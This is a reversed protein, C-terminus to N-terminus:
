CAGSGSFIKISTAQNDWSGMSGAQSGNNLCLIAGNGDTNDAIKADVGKRNRWSSAMNNFSIAALNNWNCCDRYQVMAGIYEQNAWLCVWDLPCDSPATPAFNVIVDGGHLVVRDGAHSRAPSGVVAVMSLLVALVVTRRVM